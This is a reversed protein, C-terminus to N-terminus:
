PDEDSGVPAAGSGSQTTTMSSPADLPPPQPTPTAVSTLASPPFQGPASPLGPQSGPPLLLGPPVSWLVPPLLPPPPPLLAISAMVPPAPPLLVPRVPAPPSTPTPTPTRTPTPAIPEVRITGIMGLDDHLTCYYPYIGPALFKVQFQTGQAPPPPPGAKLFGSNVVPNPGAITAHGPGDTGTVAQPDAPEPGFTVTHPTAPDTTKWTVTDGVHITLDGPLFRNVSVSQDGGSTPTVFGSGINILHGPTAVAQAQEQALLQSGQTLLDRSQDRGLQDYFGQDHPYPQNAAQVHVTGTMRPHLLCRFPYDGPSTAFTVAFTGGGLMWGSNVEQTGNWTCQGTNSNLGNCKQPENIPTFPPANFTVTHPEDTTFTWVITDNVNVWFENPLFALAQIAKDGRQAGVTDQWTTAAGAPSFGVPGVGSAVTLLVLVLRPRTLGRGTGLLGRCFKGCSRMTPMM